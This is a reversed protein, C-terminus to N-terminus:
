EAFNPQHTGLANNVIVVMVPVAFKPLSFYRM